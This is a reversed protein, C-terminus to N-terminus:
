IALFFTLSTNIFDIQLLVSDGKPALIDLMLINTTFGKVVPHFGYYVTLDMYIQVNVCKTAREKLKLKLTNVDLDSARHLFRLM